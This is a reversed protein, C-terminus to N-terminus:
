QKQKLANFGGRWWWRGESTAGDSKADVEDKRLYVEEARGRRRGPQLGTVVARTWWSEGEGKGRGM